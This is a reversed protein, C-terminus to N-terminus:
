AYYKGFRNALIADLSFYEQLVLGHYKEPHQLVQDVVACMGSATTIQIASWSLGAIQCPYVKKVYHRELFQGKDQGIVSVYILVLDQYTKPIARELIRKLTERDDNLRLDNMLFSIKECHGPYRITKYNMSRVKGRYLEPLSGLGGSTNFAEYALGDIQIHELGELPQLMLDRGDEIAHCPNGYENILGDTSWTLSYHLANSANSPLAGVRMKVADVHEFGQMLSNAVISIFGPALGCQPVFAARANEALQKVAATVKTDETLDFYHIQQTKAVQAVDENCFYPLCSIIAVIHQAQLYASLSPKDQIDMTKVQLTPYAARLRSIDAGDFQLDLLHVAYDDTQSLLCAILSGIKGAGAIAIHQVM